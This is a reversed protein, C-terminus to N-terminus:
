RYVDPSCDDLSWRSPFADGQLFPAAGDHCSSRNFACEGYEVDIGEDHQKLRHHNYSDGEQNIDPKDSYELLQQRIDDQEANDFRQCVAEFRFAFYCPYQGK